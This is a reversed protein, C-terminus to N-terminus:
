VLVEYKKNRYNLILDILEMLFNIFYLKNFYGEMHVLRLLLYVMRNIYNLM